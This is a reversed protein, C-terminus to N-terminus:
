SQGTMELIFDIYAPLDNMGNQEFNFDWFEESDPDLTLHGMGYRTGRNNSLWVDYGQEVLVYAPTKEPDNITFFNMDCEIGHMMLVAPKKAKKGILPINDETLKGPLRFMQEVYGDDTIVTYSESAYGHYISQEHFDMHTEDRGWVTLALM